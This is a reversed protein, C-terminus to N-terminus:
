PKAGRLARLTRLTYRYSIAAFGVPMILQFVWAPWDGIVTDGFAYADQVFRLAHWALLATVIATFAHVIGDTVRRVRGPLMRTLVDIAIQRRDRSAAIGGALGLWLVMLRILGDAWPLGMSLVNRLFIQTGALLILGSLLVFLLANEVWRGWREAQELWHLRRVNM